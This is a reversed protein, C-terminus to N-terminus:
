NDEGEEKWLMEDTEQPVNQEQSTTSENQLSQNLLQSYIISKRHACHVSSKHFSLICEVECNTISECEFSTVIDELNIVQTGLNLDSLIQTKQIGKTYLTDDKSFLDQLRQKVNAFRVYGAHWFIKHLYTECYRVIKKDKLSLREFRMPPKVFFQFGLSGDISCISIEKFVFGKALQFGEFEVVYKM